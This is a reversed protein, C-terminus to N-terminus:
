LVTETIDSEEPVEVEELGVVDTVGLVVLVKDELGAVDVDGVLAVLGVIEETFVIAAVGVCVM